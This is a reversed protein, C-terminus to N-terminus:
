RAVARTTAFAPPQSGPAASSPSRSAGTAPNREPRLHRHLLDSDM